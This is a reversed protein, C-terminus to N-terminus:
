CTEVYYIEIDLFITLRLIWGALGAIETSGTLEDRPGTVENGDQSRSVLSTAEERDFIEFAV